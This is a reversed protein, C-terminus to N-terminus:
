DIKKINVWYECADTGDVNISVVGNCTRVPNNDTICHLFLERNPDLHGSCPAIVNNYTITRPEFDDCKAGNRSYAIDQEVKYTGTFNCKVIKPTQHTELLATLDQGEITPSHVPEVQIPEPKSNINTIVLSTITTFVLAIGSGFLLIKGFRSM